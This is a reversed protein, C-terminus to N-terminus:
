NGYPRKIRNKFEEPIEFPNHDVVMVQVQKVLEKPFSAIQNYSIDLKYLHALQQLEEPIVTLKNDRVNLQRLATIEGIEKPIDILRNASVTLMDLTTIKGLEKPLSVLRNESVDLHQLRSLKGIEEPLSELRNQNIILSTLQALQTLEIPISNLRNNTLVLRELNVLQAIEKPLTSLQNNKMVLQTLGTFLGIEKPLAQINESSLDIFNITAIHEENNKLWDRISQAKTTTDESNELINKIGSLGFTYNKEAIIGIVEILKEDHKFQVWQSMEELRSAPMSSGYRDRLEAQKSKYDSFQSADKALNIYVDKVFSAEEGKTIGKTFFTGDENKEQPLYNQLLPSIQCAEATQKFLDKRSQLFGLGTEGKLHTNFSNVHTLLDQPFHIEKLEQLRNIVKLLKEKDSKLVDPLSSQNLAKKLQDLLVIDNEELNKDELSSKQSIDDLIKTVNEFQQHITIEGSLYSHISSIFKGLYGQNSSVSTQKQTSDAQITKIFSQISSSEIM